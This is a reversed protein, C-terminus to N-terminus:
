APGDLLQEVSLGCDRLIKGALGVGIVERGHIPVVTTRGDDHALFHHSGRVRLVHFGWAELAKVLQKGTWRPKRPTM